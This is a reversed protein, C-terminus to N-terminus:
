VTRGKADSRKVAGPQQITDRLLLQVDHVHNHEVGLGTRTHPLFGQGEEHVVGLAELLLRPLVGGVEEIQRQGGQAGLSSLAFLATRLTLRVLGLCQRPPLAHCLLQLRQGLVCLVVQAATQLARV